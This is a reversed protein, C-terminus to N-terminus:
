GATATEVSRPVRGTLKLVFKMAKHAGDSVPEFMLPCGGEIVTLGNERATEAAEHSVSGADISRHMWIKDIQLDVCECVAELAHTGSTGIVVAEVGGPISRLTPYCRDGEVTEANPNVAFVEYGRDRLRRYVVNAGHSEPRRSVGTVAIRKYRLFDSAARAIPVRVTTRDLLQTSM